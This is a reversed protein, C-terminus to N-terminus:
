CAGAPSAAAMLKLVSNELRELLKDFSPDDRRDEVICCAHAATTRDRGFLQGSETLTMGGVVHVLYMAIQRAFAVSASRRTKAQLESRSVGLASSVAIETARRLKASRTAELPGLAMVFEQGIEDVASFVVPEM